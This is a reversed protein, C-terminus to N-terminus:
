DAKAMHMVPVHIEREDSFLPFLVKAMAGTIEIVRVQHDRLPGEVIEVQDGVSFEGHTRMHREASPARLSGNAYTQAFRAFAERYLKRPRDKKGVVGTILPMNGLMYWPPPGSFGAFVYRPAVAFAIEEKKGRAKAYRNKHRWRTETPVFTSIGRRKLLHACVYEKQPLTTFAFWDLDTDIETILDKAVILKSM